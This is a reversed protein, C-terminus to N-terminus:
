IRGQRKYVDQPRVSAAAFASPYRVTHTAPPTDALLWRRPSICRRQLRSPIRKYRGFVLRHPSLAAM